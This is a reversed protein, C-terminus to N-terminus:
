FILAKEDKDLTVLAGSHAENMKNELVDALEKATQLYLDNLVDHLM